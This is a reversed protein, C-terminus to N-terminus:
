VLNSMWSERILSSLLLTASRLIFIFFWKIRIITVRNLNVILQTHNMIWDSLHEGREKWRANPKCDQLPPEPRRGGRDPGSARQSSFAGSSFLTPGHLALRGRSGVSLTVFVCVTRVVAAQVVEDAWTSILSLFYTTPTQTQVLHLAHHYRRNYNQRSWSMTTKIIWKARDENHVQWVLMIYSYNGVCILAAWRINLILKGKIQSVHNLCWALFETEQQTDSLTWLRKGNTLQTTHQHCMRNTNM